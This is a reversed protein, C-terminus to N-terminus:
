FKKMIATKLIGEITDYVANLAKEETAESIFPIDINKNLATVIEKQLDEGFLENVLDEKVGDFMGM